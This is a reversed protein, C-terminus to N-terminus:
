AGLGPRELLPASSRKTRRVERVDKQGNRWGWVCDYKKKKKKIIQIAMEDLHIRRDTREILTHSTLFSKMPEKKMERLLSYGAQLQM